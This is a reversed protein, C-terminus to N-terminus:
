DDDETEETFIYKEVEGSTIMGRTYIYDIKQEQKRLEREFNINDRAAAIIALPNQTYGDGSVGDYPYIKWKGCIGDKKLVLGGDDLLYYGIFANLSHIWGGDFIESCKYALIRRFNYNNFEDLLECIEGALIQEETFKSRNIGANLLKLIATVFVNIEPFKSCYYDLKEFQEEIQDITFKKAEILKQNM